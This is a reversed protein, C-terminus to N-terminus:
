RLKVRPDLWAYLIDVVLNITLYLLVIMLITGQIVPYDRRLISQVVMRGIGPLSFVTETVVAESILAAVTFGIASVVTLLANRFVHRVVVALPHLGKARATRVYDERYVDLMSARTLRIILAANPAALALSPLLLYRLNTIGGDEFISPYGSSPLWGLTAAFILILYLGVWFTPVSALFMALGSLGQDLLSGRRAAALMGIPLGLIVIWVMSFLALLVSTELGDVILDLVPVQFFISKGLDGTLAATLWIIYQHLLSQELGMEARLAAVAEPTAQDGLMVAAPDGPILRIFAFILFSSALLTPLFMGIRRILYRVM